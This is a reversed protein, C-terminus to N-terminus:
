RPDEAGSSGSRRKSGRSYIEEGRALQAVQQRPRCIVRNRKVVMFPRSITVRNVQDCSVSRDNANTAAAANKGREAV